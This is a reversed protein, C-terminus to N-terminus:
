AGDPGPPYADRMAAAYRAAHDLWSESFSSFYAYDTFISEAEVVHDLQVMRCTGCVVAALPYRPLPAPPPQPPWTYGAARVSKVWGM